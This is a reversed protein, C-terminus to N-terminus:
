TIDKQGITSRLPIIVQRIIGLNPPKLGAAEAPVLLSFIALLKFSPQWAITASHYFV